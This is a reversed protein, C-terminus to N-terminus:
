YNAEREDSKSIVRAIVGQITSWETWNSNSLLARKKYNCERILGCSGEMVHCLSLESSSGTRSGLYEKGLPPLELCLSMMLWTSNLSAPQYLQTAEVFDSTMVERAACSITLWFGPIQLLSENM